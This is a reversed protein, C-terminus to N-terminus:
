PRGGIVPFGSPEADTEAPNGTSDHEATATCGHVKLHAEMVAKVFALRERTPIDAWEAMIMRQSDHNGFEVLAAALNMSVDGDRIQRWLEPCAAKQVRQALFFMRRSIGAAKCIQDATPSHLDASRIENTMHPNAKSQPASNDTFGFKYSPGGTSKLGNPCAVSCPFHLRAAGSITLELVHGRKPGISFDASRQARPGIEPGIFM